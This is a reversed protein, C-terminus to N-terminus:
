IPPRRGPGRPADDVRSHRAQACRDRVDPAGLEANGLEGTDIASLTDNEGLGATSVEYSQVINNALEGALVNQPNSQLATFATAYDFGSGAESEESGVVVPVEAAVATSVEAMQMLCADFALLSISVGSSQIASSLETPTITDYGDPDLPNAYALDENSGLLGGGHDWMILAYHQAPANTQVM